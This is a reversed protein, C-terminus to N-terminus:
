KIQFWAIQNVLTNKNYIYNVKWREKQIIYTYYFFSKQLEIVRILYQIQDM